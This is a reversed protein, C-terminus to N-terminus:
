RGIWLLKWFPTPTEGYVVEFDTNFFFYAAILVTVCIGLGILTVLWARKKLEVQSFEDVLKDLINRKEKM